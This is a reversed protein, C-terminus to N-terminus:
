VPGPGSWNGSEAKTHLRELDEAPAVLAFQGFTVSIEGENLLKEDSVVWYGYRYQFQGDGHDIEDLVIIKEPYSEQQVTVTETIPYDGSRYSRSASELEEQKEAVQRLVTEWEVDDRELAIEKPRKETM